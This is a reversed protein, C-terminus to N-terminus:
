SKAPPATLGRAFGGSPPSLLCQSAGSALNRCAEVGDALSELARPALTTSVAGSSAIKSASNRRSRLRDGGDAAELTIEAPAETSEFGTRPCEDNTMLVAVGSRHQEFGLVHPTGHDQPLQGPCSLVLGTHPLLNTAWPAALRRALGPYLGDCLGGSLWVHWAGQDSRRRFLLVKMASRKTARVRFCGGCSVDQQRRKKADPHKQQKLSLQKRSIRPESNRTPSSSIM